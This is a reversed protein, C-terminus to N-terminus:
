NPKTRAPRSISFLSHRRHLQCLHMQMQGQRPTPPAPKWMNRPCNTKLGPRTSPQGTVTSPSFILQALVPTTPSRILSRAPLPSPNNSDRDCALRVDATSPRTLPDVVVGHRPSHVTTSLHINWSTNPYKPDRPPRLEHSLAKPSPPLRTVSSSLASLVAM